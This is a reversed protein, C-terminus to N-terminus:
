IHILSLGLEMGLNIVKVGEVAFNQKKLSSTRFSYSLALNSSESNILGELSQWGNDFVQQFWRGLNSPTPTPSIDAISQWGTVTAETTNLHPLSRDQQQRQCLAKRWRENEMLAGWQTFPLELRPSYPLPQSLQTLLTQAETTSLTPVPPLQPRPSPYLERALWMATLDETLEEVALCYTEDLRDRKGQNYLQQHTAYGWVRLYCEELDLQVALYYNGAWDSLEVWERQVRLETFDSVDSVILILRTSNLEIATGNVLQWFGFLDDKQLWTKPSLQLDTETELYSSFVNLGLYNLYANWRTAPNSYNYNQTQQWAQEREVSSFELFLQEPYILALDDLTLKIM